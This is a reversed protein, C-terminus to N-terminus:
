TYQNEMTNLHQRHGDALTAALSYHDDLCPQTPLWGVAGSCCSAPLLKFYRGQQMMSGAQLQLGNCVLWIGLRSDLLLLLMWPTLPTLVAHCGGFCCM